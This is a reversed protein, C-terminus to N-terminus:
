LLWKVDFRNDIMYIIITHSLSLSLQSQHCEISQPSSSFEWLHDVVADEGALRFFEEVGEEQPCQGEYGCRNGSLSEKLHVM